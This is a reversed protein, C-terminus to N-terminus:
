RCARAWHRGADWSCYFSPYAGTKGLAFVTSASAVTVVGPPLGGDSGDALPNDPPITGRAGSQRTTRGYALLTWGAGNDRSRFLQEAPPASASRSTPGYSIRLYLTRSGVPERGLGYLPDGHAKVVPALLREASTWRAWTQGANRSWWLTRQGSVATMSVYITKSTAFDPALWVRDFTSRKPFSYLSHGCSFTADCRFVEVHADLGVGFDAVAFAAGDSEYTDSVAFERDRGPTGVVPTQSRAVPDVLASRNPEGDQGAPSAMVFTTHAGPSSPLLGGPVTAVYATLRGWALPSVLTFTAGGDTSQFLGTNRVQLFLTKDTKYLRSVGLYDVRADPDNRFLGAATAATWTRGRNTTRFVAIGTTAGTSPDRVHGACFATGDSAFDPSAAFQTCPQVAPPTAARATGAPLLTALLCAAVGGRRLASRVGPMSAGM